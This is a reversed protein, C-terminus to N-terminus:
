EQPAQNEQKLLIELLQRLVPTAAKVIRDDNLVGPAKEGHFINCRIGKVEELREM